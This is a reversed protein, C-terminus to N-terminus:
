MALYIEYNIRRNQIFRTIRRIAEYNSVIIGDLRKLHLHLLGQMEKILIVKKWGAQIVFRVLGKIHGAKIAFFRLIKIASRDM